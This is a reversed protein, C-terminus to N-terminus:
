TRKDVDLNGVTLIVTALNKKSWFVLRPFIYWIVV